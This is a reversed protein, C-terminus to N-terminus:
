KITVTLPSHLNQAFDAVYKNWEASTKIAARSWASGFYYVYESNPAYNSIALVHGDAGGRLQTKEPEPFWQAKAEVLPAPFAAGVFVKGNDVAPNDTPDVYTIYGAKTDAVYNAEAQPEHLVLGTAVLVPKTINSYSIVAKNMYSYADLSIVRTEVVNDDGDVSFPSYTLKATFRLPGNDLIDHTVFAWPYILSDGIMLGNAGGGLTPGVKYIDMGNGHDVHYSVTQYMSDATAKDTKALEAIKAKTAPNLEKEYRAEVVPETTNYKTWVDYGFAREGSAQLEPGYARYATLDNEWALDDKREPYFRGCALTPFIEPTGVEIRYDASGNAKVTAPFILMADYTIQYPLQKGNPCIVVIQATDNLHLKTEVEKMSIEVMEDTRDASSSNTVTVKVAHEHHCSFLMCAAAVFFLIKKM